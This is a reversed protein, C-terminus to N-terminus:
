GLIKRAIDSALKGDYQGSHKEKLAKMAMGVNLGPTGAKLESIIKELDAESLQAPLFAELVSIEKELAEKQEPRNAKEAFEIAERRKKIELRLVAVKGEDPLDEVGKAIEEYQFASLVSRVADLKIQDKAKLAEKLAAKLRDKM